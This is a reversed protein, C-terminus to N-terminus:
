RRNGLIVVARISIKDGETAEEYEGNYDHADQNKKVIIERVSKLDDFGDEYGQVLVNADAPLTKLKDVLDKVIM